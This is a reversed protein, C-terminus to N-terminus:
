IGGLTRALLLMPFSGALGMMLLSLANGLVGALLIWKRGYRDSLGGWSPAFIFQMLSFVALMAGVEAGGAGFHEIYFPMIPIVIGFGIMVVIMTFFLTILKANKFM